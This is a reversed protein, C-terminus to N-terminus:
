AKQSIQPPPLRTDIIKTGGNWQIPIDTVVLETYLNKHRV